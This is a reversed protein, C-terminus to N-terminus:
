CDLVLIQSYVKEKSVSLQKNVKEIGSIVIRHYFSQCPIVSNSSFSGNVGHKLLHSIAKDGMM